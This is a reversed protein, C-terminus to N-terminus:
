QIVIEVRRNAAMQDENMPKPYLMKSSGYGITQMRSKKIGHSSLYSCVADARKESLQQDYKKSQSYDPDNVYGKIIVKVKPNDKLFQVVYDLSPRSSALINRSDQQFNIDRLTIKQASKVPELKLLFTVSSTDDTSSYTAQKPMHGPANARITLTKYKELTLAVDSNEYHVPKSQLGEIVLSAKIPHNMSDLVHIFFNAHSVNQVPPATPTPAPEQAPAPTPTVSATRKGFNLHLKLVFGRNEALYNDVALYYRDGASAKVAASFQSNPGPSVYSQTSHKSLGTIGNGNKPSKAFNTRLPKVKQQLEKRCFDPGEAKFLIFDFDDTAQVPVIDFTLDTDYPVVFTLWVTKHKKGFYMQQNGKVSLSSDAWGYPIVPGCTASKVEIADNCTAHEQANTLKCGILIFGILLIHKM